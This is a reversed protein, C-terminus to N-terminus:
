TKIIGNKSMQELIRYIGKGDVMAKGDRGIQLRRQRTLQQISQLLKEESVIGIDSIVTGLGANEFLEASKKQDANYYYYLVPTGVAAAEYATIGPSIIAFDAEYLPRALSEIKGVFKIKPYIRKLIKKSSKKLYFGGTIKLQFGHRYLLDILNRLPRYQVGGGLSLLVRKSKSYYNRQLKNFHIFKHHLIAFAPGSLIVQNSKVPINNKGELTGNILIDVDQPNLGLDTVQVTKLQNNRAKKLLLKDEEEFYRIDFIITDVETWDIKQVQKILTHSFGQDTLYRRATKDTNIIFQVSNKHKMLSALYTSRRIHGFGIKESGQTRIIIM